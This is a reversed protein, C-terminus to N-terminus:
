YYSGLMAAMSWVGLIQASSTKRTDLLVHNSLKGSVREAHSSMVSDLIQLFQNRLQEVQRLHQHVLVLNAM